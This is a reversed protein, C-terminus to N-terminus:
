ISRYTKTNWAQLRICTPQNVRDETPGKRSKFPTLLFEWRLAKINISIIYIFISIKAIFQLYSWSVKEKVPPKSQIGNGIRDPYKGPEEM